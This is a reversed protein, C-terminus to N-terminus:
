LVPSTNCNQTCILTSYPNQCTGVVRTQITVLPPLAAAKAAGVSILALVAAFFLAMRGLLNLGSPGRSVRKCRLMNRRGRSSGNSGRWFKAGINLVREANPLPRPAAPAQANRGAGPM